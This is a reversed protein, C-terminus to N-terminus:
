KSSFMITGTGESSEITTHESSDNDAALYHNLFIKSVEPHLVARENELEHAVYLVSRLIAKTLTDTCSDSIITEWISIKHYLENAQEHSKVLALQAKYCALCICDYISDGNLLQNIVYTGLKPM